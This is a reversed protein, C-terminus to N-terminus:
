LGAKANKITMYMHKVNWALFAACQTFLHASLDGLKSVDYFTPAGLLLFLMNQFPRWKWKCMLVSGQFNPIPNQRGGLSADSLWVWTLHGCNSKWYTAIYNNPINHINFLAILCTNCFFYTCNLSAAFNCKIQGAVWSFKLVNGVDSCWDFLFLDPCGLLGYLDFLRSSAMWRVFNMWRLGM